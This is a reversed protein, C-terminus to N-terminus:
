PNQYKEFGHGNAYKDQSPKDAPLRFDFIDGLNKAIDSVRIKCGRWENQGAIWPKVNATITALAAEDTLLHPWNGFAEMELPSLSSSDRPFDTAALIADVGTSLIPLASVERAVPDPSAEVEAEAEAEAKAESEAEAQALKPKCLKVPKVPPKRRRYEQMYERMYERREDQSRADRYKGGNLVLFGGEIHEIRRGEFEHSRSDSDPSSLVELAKECDEKKVRALHALGGVSARVMSDPGMRALMTVWVIRTKDDENWISSDTIESWLKTFGSM